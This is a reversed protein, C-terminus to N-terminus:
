SHRDYRVFRHPDPLRRSEAMDSRVKRNPRTTVPSLEVIAATMRLLDVSRIPCGGGLQPMLRTPSSRDAKSNGFWHTHLGSAASVAETMHSKIKVPQGFITSGDSKHGSFKRRYNLAPPLDRLSTVRSSSRCCSPSRISPRPGQRPRLNRTGRCYGRLRNCELPRSPRLSLSSGPTERQSGSPFTRDCGM